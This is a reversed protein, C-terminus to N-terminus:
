TAAALVRGTVGVVKDHDRGLKWTLPSCHTHAPPHLHPIYCIPQLSGHAHPRLGADMQPGEAKQFSRCGTLKAVPDFGLQWHNTPTTHAQGEWTRGQKNRRRLLEWSVGGRHQRERKRVSLGGTDRPSASSSSLTQQASTSLGGPQGLGWLGPRPDRTGEHGRCKRTSGKTGRPEPGLSPLTPGPTWHSRCRGLSLTDEAATGEAWGPAPHPHRRSSPAATPDPSVSPGTHAQGPAPRLTPPPPPDLTDKLFGLHGSLCLSNRTYTVSAPVASRQAWRPM